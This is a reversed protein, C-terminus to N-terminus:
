SIVEQGRMIDKTDEFRHVMYRDAVKLYYSGDTNSNAQAATLANGHHV